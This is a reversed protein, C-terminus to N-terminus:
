WKADKSAMFDKTVGVVKELSELWPVLEAQLKTQDESLKAYFDKRYPTAGM